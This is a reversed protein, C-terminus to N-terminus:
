EYIPDPAWNSWVCYSSMIQAKRIYCEVQEAKGSIALVFMILDVGSKMKVLYFSSKRLLSDPHFSISQINPGNNEIEYKLTCVSCTVCMKWHLLSLNSLCQLVSFHINCKKLFILLGFITWGCLVLVPSPGTCPGFLFYPVVHFHECQDSIPVPALAWQKRKARWWNGGSIGQPHFWISQIQSYKTRENWNWVQSHLCLINRM